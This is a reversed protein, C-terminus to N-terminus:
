EEKTLWQIAENRNAFFRINNYGATNIVFYAVARMLANEGFFAVNKINHANSQITNIIIQRQLANPRHAKSLDVLINSPGEEETLSEMVEMALKTGEIDGTPDEPIWNIIKNSDVFVKSNM